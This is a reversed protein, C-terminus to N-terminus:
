RAREIDGVGAQPRDHHVVAVALEQALDTVLLHEIGDRADRDVAAALADVHHVDAADIGLVVAYADEFASRAAVEEVDALAALAGALEVQRAVERHPAVAVEVHDVAAIEADLHEVGGAAVQVGEAVDALLEAVEGPGLLDRGVA